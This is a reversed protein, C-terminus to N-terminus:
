RKYKFTVRGVKWGPIHPLWPPNPPEVRVREGLGEGRPADSATSGVGLM